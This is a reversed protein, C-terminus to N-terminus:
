QLFGGSLGVLDRCFLSFDVKESSMLAMEM